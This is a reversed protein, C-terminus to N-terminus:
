AKQMRSVYAVIYTPLGAAGIGTDAGADRASDAARIGPRAPTSSMEQSMNFTSLKSKGEREAMATTKTNQHFVSHDSACLKRTTSTVEPKDQTDTNTHEHIMQQQKPTKTTVGVDSGRRRSNNEQRHTLIQVKRGTFCTFTTTFQTTPATPPKREVEHIHAQQRQLVSISGEKTRGLNPHPDELQDTGTDHCGASDGSVVEERREFRSM